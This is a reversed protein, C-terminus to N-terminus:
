RRSPAASPSTSHVLVKVASNSQSSAPLTPLARPPECGKPAARIALTDLLAAAARLREERRTGGGSSCHFSAVAPPFPTFSGSRVLLLSFSVFSSLSCHLTPRPLLWPLQCNLPLQQTGATGGGGEMTGAQPM